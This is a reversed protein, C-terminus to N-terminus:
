PRRRARALHLRSRLMEGALRLANMRLPPQLEGAVFLRRTEARRIKGSSTRPLTGPELVVVHGPVLGTSRTVHQSVVNALDGDAADADHAREVFVVLEEADGDDPVIGVAASCGTRVGPVADLCQEIGQPAHNRGHLIIIDKARGYLYLEGKHLFGTDGTVLWGDRLVEASAEPLGHYGQMVSPGRAEVDGTRDEDVPLGAEDVVRVEFGPLPPGLSVLPHGEPSPRAEGAHILSERDFTECRFPRRLDSFTIALTAEALGYVPTLSEPPLGWAGFREVFRQLVSPTVPEAGNLAVVWSSLDVGTLEEDRIRDLCLGYAFNPAPSISGRHRSLARLWLAPRTVFLEPPILVLDGPHYVATFVGGVLGMDHYLPLWSVGVHAREPGEPYANLISNLIAGVNALIQRHSLQVPKPSATTGSSFQIFAPDDPALSVPRFAQPPLADLTLCGLAPRAREISVGLIRSTRKDCLVLRAGCARLMAATRAHYEELRGLRVPPYLPVPVLGALVSGFFADYFGPGTPLVIAVRDGPRLGLRQLGGAVGRARSLIQDYGLRTEREARDVFFVGRESGAAVELLAGLNDPKTPM